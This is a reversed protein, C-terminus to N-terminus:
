SFTIIMKQFEYIITKINLKAIELLSYRNVLWKIFECGLYYGVDSHGQYNHWDGFFDQTSECADIRRLYEVFLTKRNEDCWKLWGNKDQHYFSFNKCLLKECYMAIGEQYLQWISSEGRNNTTYYLNGFIDHWIHGLEHYILSSMSSLDCWDLEIIKEIGLLVTKKGALSTAWGAGNCLGLYLIINVDLDNGFVEIIRKQLQQTAEVFSSHAQELKDANNLAYTIVPIVQKNFDYSSADEEVKQSLFPSVLDAYDRWLTISFENHSFSSLIKNYTDIVKM